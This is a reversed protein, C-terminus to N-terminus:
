AAPTASPRRLAEFRAVLELARQVLGPTAPPTVPAFKRADCERLLAGLDATLDPPVQSLGRLAPQLEEGTLERSRGFFAATVYHRLHRAVEAVVQADESRGRLAELAQRAAADDPIQLGPKPRTLFWAAAALIGIALVSGAIVFGSHEEWFGPTMPPLPPRLEPIEVKDFSQTKSLALAPLPLIAALAVMWGAIHPLRRRAKSAMTPKTQQSPTNM